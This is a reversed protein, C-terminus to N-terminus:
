FDLKFRARVGWKPADPNELYNFRRILDVRFLKFINAIGVSGEMYPGNKLTYTIPVGNQEQFVLVNKNYAPNNGDSLDGWIGKFSFVERWKLKRLLPVKNFVFGNMYYQVNVAAYRDSVFELFNMLNYANLQYAYTQNARHVSLLPFPIDKGFIYSGEVNVDAYGLQSLYFRKFAGATVNHYNFEGELFGKMGATYSLNFVPYKNYLPSRYLKGQMFQEKPAYRLALTVETTNLETHNVLENQDNLNQYTLIGAPQQRWKAVKLNYSFHNKLEHMYELTYTDNYLWRFNDGRKFSLLVNDEQVFQLAEGPIKTDKQYSGKIYHQPFNYISKNNLAYSGSLFYKWKEDKFGYAAYTEAYFRKSMDPTTRGGFRLRFGEVPNFSYFTNIPGIEVPGAVKYGAILMTGLDMYRRFSSITQLTDVNRYVNAEPRALPKHRLENWDESIKINPKLYVLTEESGSYVSDPLVVGVKYDKYNVMRKGQFGSGNETIAFEMTLDSNQLYYKGNGDEQFTLVTKMDRMFNLNIEKDLTLNAKQVAYNGDLTIYLQGRFLLDTKNRPVFSLEVLMPTQNKLTDTIFFKYFTPASNAIPSLFMNTLFSINNDYIDIDEYLRATYESISENSMFKRDFEVHKEALVNKKYKRPSKRYYVQTIKEQMYAPLVYTNKGEEQEEFLFQYDKFIRRNRFKESLNSLALSVKEYEEYQAFDQGELRNISKNEIVKRILQVAPNDRNRYRYNKAKIVVEDLLSADVELEVNIKQNKGVEITIERTLYGIYKFELKSYNGNFAISFNGDEDTPVAKYNPEGPVRVTVFPLTEKTVADTVKGTVITTQAFGSFAIWTFFVSLIYFKNQLYM